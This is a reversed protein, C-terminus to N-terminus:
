CTKKKPKKKTGSGQYLPPISGSTQAMQEEPEMVIWWCHPDRKATGKNPNDREVDVFRAPDVGLLECLQSRSIAVREIPM